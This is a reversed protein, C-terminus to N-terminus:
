LRHATWPCMSYMQAEGRIPFHVHILAIRPPLEVHCPITLLMWHFGTTITVTGFDVTYWDGGEGERTCVHIYMYIIHLHNVYVHIYMYM